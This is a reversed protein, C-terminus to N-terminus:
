PGLGVVTVGVLERVLKSALLGRRRDDRKHLRVDGPHVRWGQATLTYLAGAAGWLRPSRVRLAVHEGKGLHPCQQVSQRAHLLCLPPQVTLSGEPWSDLDEPERWGLFLWGQATKSAPGRCVQCRLGFMCEYQRSPHM